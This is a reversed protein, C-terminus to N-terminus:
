KGCANSTGEVEIDQAERVFQDRRSAKFKEYDEKAKKERATVELWYKKWYFSEYTTICCQRLCQTLTSKLWEGDKAPTDEGPSTEKKLHKIEDLISGFELRYAYLKRYNEQDMLQEAQQYLSDCDKFWNTVQDKFKKQEDFDSDNQQKLTQVQESCCQGNKFENRAQEWQTKLEIEVKDYSQDKLDKLTKRLNAKPTDIDDTWNVLKKYQEEVKPLKEKIFNAYEKQYDDVIKPLETNYKNQLDTLNKQFDKGAESNQNEGSEKQYINQLENLLRGITSQQKLRETDPATKNELPNNTVM